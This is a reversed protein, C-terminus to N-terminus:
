AFHEPEVKNDQMAQEDREPEFDSTSDPVPEYVHYETVLPLGKRWNEFIREPGAYMREIQISAWGYSVIKAKGTSRDTFRIKM